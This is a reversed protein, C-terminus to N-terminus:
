KGSNINGWNVEAGCCFLKCLNDEITKLENKNRQISYFINSKYNNEASIENINNILLPHAGIELFTDFGNKLISLIAKEFEVVKITNDIIYDLNLENETVLEGTVSSFLLLENRKVTVHAIERKLSNLMKTVLSSHYPVEVPLTKHYIELDAISKLFFAMCDNSGSVILSNPGNIAAISIEGKIENIISQIIEKNCRVYVMIGNGEIDQQLAGRIYSIWLADELTYVGSEYFSYTEGYSHGIVADPYIGYSKWVKTLAYQFAFLCVQAYKTKCIRSTNVSKLIENIISWSSFQSLIKDCEYIAKKFIPNQVFLSQGMGPWNGGMGSYVFIIKSIADGNGEYIYNSNKKSKCKDICGRLKDLSSARIALRRCDTICSNECIYLESNVKQFITGDININKQLQM